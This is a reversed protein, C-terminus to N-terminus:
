APGFLPLPGAATGPPGGKALADRAPRARGPQDGGRGLMHEAMAQLGDLVPLDSGAIAASLERWDRESANRAFSVVLSATLAGASLGRREAERRVAAAFPGGISAVAAAAIGEDTCSHLIDAMLM